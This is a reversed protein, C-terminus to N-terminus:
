RKAKIRIVTLSMAPVAQNFTKQIKISSITPIIKHTNEFTNEADGDGVLVSLEANWDLNKFGKLNVAMSKATKSFNVM